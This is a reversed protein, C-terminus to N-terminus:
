SLTFHVIIIIYQVIILCQYQQFDRYLIHVMLSIYISVLGPNHNDECAYVHYLSTLLIMISIM